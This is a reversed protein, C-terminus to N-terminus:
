QNTSVSEELKVFAYGLGSFHELMRPLAYEMREKAKLSDHFVVISGERTHKLVNDLCKEGSIRTDFDGSLVDWMVITYKKALANYQLPKLKGYPPRFFASQVLDGCQEINRYYSHDDTKWGDLHNFTHNAVAHGRKKIDEFIKRHKVINDGICFFTAKADFQHLTELVRPTVGEIPGDDFTLYIKKEEGPMRWLAKRMVSRLMMSPRPAYYM